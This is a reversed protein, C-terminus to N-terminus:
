TLRSKGAAAGPIGHTSDDDTMKTTLTNRSTGSKPLSFHFCAGKGPEGEAWARGEHRNIIRAVIALGIGTGPFDDAHHLRQFVNFLKDLHRMDFGAGNDRIHYLSGVDDRDGSITIHADTNRSSYKVANGLLNVWVQRILSADGSASPLNEMSIRGRYDQSVEKWVSEAMEMMNLQSHQLPSRSIRAFRLMDDILQGMRNSSSRIIGLLRRDEDDARGALRDALMRAFGDIARLPARLDHSASYSFSELDANIQELKRNAAAIQQSQQYIKTTISAAHRRTKEHMVEKQTMDQKMKFLPTVDEPHNVIYVLNGEADLAPVNTVNWYRKEYGGGESDPRRIDFQLIPMVDPARTAKVRAMSAALVHAGHAQPDGPNDPFVDFLQRGIISERRTMTTNLFSDSAALIELEPSLALYLGPLADFLLRYDPTNKPSHAATM